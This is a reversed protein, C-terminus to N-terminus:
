ARHSKGLPMHIEVRKVADVFDAGGGVSSQMLVLSFAPTGM